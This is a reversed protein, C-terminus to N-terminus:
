RPPGISMFPELYIAETQGEGNYFQRRSLGAHSIALVQQLWTELPSGKFVAKMGQKPIRQYLDQVEGYTWDKTLDAVASLSDKDYLLGVWLAPLAILQELSGSDAGRMELYHKLRVEPFATSLHDHWDQLTPYESPLAPLKGQMFDAFSQGTADIYAGDRKVFYMPVTLMYDVYREFGMGREFVFALIGTRDPDTDQWIQSRYSQYDTQQGEVQGSNAFLATVMPQLAMGVRMKTVMDAESQYDLNAQVTCTRTMMDLGLDGRTPMYRRMLDYRAKPMWPVDERKNFPDFGVAQFKLGLDQSVVAVQQQHTVLEQYTEHVTKFPAGSLEFQGGPELSIAAQTNPSQLGILYDNEMVPQWGFAQLSELIQWISQYPARGHGKLFVFQEHETGIRFQQPSKCGSALDDILDQKTLM